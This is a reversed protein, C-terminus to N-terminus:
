LDGLNALVLGDELDTQYILKKKAIATTWFQKVNKEM